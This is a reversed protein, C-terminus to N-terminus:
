TGETLLAHNKKRIIILSAFVERLAAILVFLKGALYVLKGPVNILKWRITEIKNTAFEKPMTLLRQLIFLNYALVTIGFFVANAEFTGCPMKRAGFGNKVEKIVNEEEARENYDLAVENTPQETIGAAKCHYSYGGPIKGNKWRLVILRFAEQTKNMTHTTEAIERDTKIGDKNLFPRWDNQPIAKIGAIVAADQDTAIIWPKKKANLENIVDAQYFESDALTYEVTFGKPLKDFARKVQELRRGNDNGDRFEYDIILDLEKLFAIAPRYGKFGEYTMKASSKEAKIISPDLVLGGSLLGSKKLVFHVVHQNLQHLANIGDKGVWRLWDGIASESPIEINDMIERLAHDDRLMRTDSLNEGGAYLTLLLTRLYVAAVYYNNSKSTPFFKNALEPIKLENILEAFVVLGSKATIKEETRIFKAQFM